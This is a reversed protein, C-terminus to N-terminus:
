GTNEYFKFNIGAGCFVLVGGGRLTSLLLTSGRFLPIKRNIYM